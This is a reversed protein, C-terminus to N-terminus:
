VRDPPIYAVPYPLETVIRRKRDDRDRREREADAPDARHEAHEVGHQDPRQRVGVGVAEHHDPDVVGLGVDRISEIGCRRFPVLPAAAIGDERIEGATPWAVRRERTVAIRFLHRRPLDCPGEPAHEAHLRDEAADEGFVFVVLVHSDDDDAV